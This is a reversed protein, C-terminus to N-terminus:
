PAGPKLFQPQSAIRPMYVLDVFPGHSPLLAQGGFSPQEMMRTNWQGDHAKMLLESTVQHDVSPIIVAGKDHNYILDKAGTTLVPQQQLHSSGNRVLMEQPIGNNVRGSPYPSQETVTSIPEGLLHLSLENLAQKQSFHDISSSVQKNQQTLAIVGERLCHAPWENLHRVPGPSFGCSDRPHMNMQERSANAPMTDETESSSCSENLSRTDIVSSPSAAAAFQLQFGGQHHRPEAGPGADNHFHNGHQLPQNRSEETRINKISERHSSFHLPENQFGHISVHNPVCDGATVHGAASQLLVENGMALPQLTGHESLISHYQLMQQRDIQISRSDFFCSDQIDHTQENLANLRADCQLLKEFHRNLVGVPFQISHHRCISAQGDTFDSTSQWLTHKRPQPNIERFFLPPRSLEIDLSASQDDAFVAKLASIDSWQIEMKSKLRNDLVEWVLKRKAYYCKAVLDGDHLPTCEWTGIRLKSAPFNAAKLKDREAISPSGGLRSLRGIQSQGYSGDEESHALKRQILDLLSPSKRLNLGLPSPETLPNFHHELNVPKDRERTENQERLNSQIDKYKVDTPVLQNNFIPLMPMGKQPGLSDVQLPYLQGEDSFKPRKYSPVDSDSDLLLESELKPVKFNTENHGLESGGTGSFPVFSFDVLSSLKNSDPTRIALSTSFHPLKELNPPLKTNVFSEM